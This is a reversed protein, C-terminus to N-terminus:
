ILAACFPVVGVWACWAGGGGGGDGAVAVADLRPSVHYASAGLLLCCLAHESSVLLLAAELAVATTTPGAIRQPSNPGRAQQFRSRPKRAAGGSSGQRLFGSRPRHQVVAASTATTADSVGRAGIGAHVAWRCQEYVSDQERKQRCLSASVPLRGESFRSM